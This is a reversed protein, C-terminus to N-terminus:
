PIMRVQWFPNYLNPQETFTQNNNQPDKNSFGYQCGNTGAYCDPRHFYVEAQALAYVTKNCMQNQQEFMPLDNHWGPIQNGNSDVGINDSCASQSLFATIKPNTFNPNLYTYSQVGQYRGAIASCSISTNGGCLGATTMSQIMSSNIYQAADASLTAADGGAKLNALPFKILGGLLSVQVKLSDGSSTWNLQKNTTDYGVSTSGTRTGSINILWPLGISYSASRDRIWETSAMSSQAYRLMNLMAGNDSLTSASTGAGGTANAGQSISDCYSSLSNTTGVSTTYYNTDTDPHVFLVMNCLAKDMDQADQTAQKVRADTSNNYFYKLVGQNNMAIPASNRVQYNAVVASMASDVISGGGDTNAMNAFATQQLTSYFADNADVALAYVGSVGQTAQQLSQLMQAFTAAGLSNSLGQLAQSVIDVEMQFSFMHGIAVENAIMARNTYAMFNLQRAAIQAGSYAAADAANVLNIKENVTRGSNFVFFLTVAAVLVVGLALVISQGSQRSVSSFYAKKIINKNKMMKPVLM